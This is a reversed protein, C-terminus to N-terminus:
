SPLGLSRGSPFEIYIVGGVSLKDALAEVVAVGNPLHEIIHNAIIVDFYHEPLADLRERALDLHYFQEILAFNRKSQRIDLVDLGYYQCNPFFKKAHIASESGCGVDLLRFTRGCFERYFRKYKPYFRWLIM